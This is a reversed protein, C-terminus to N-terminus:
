VMAKSCISDAVEVISQRVRERGILVFLFRRGVFCSSLLFFLMKSVFLVCVQLLEQFKIPISASM